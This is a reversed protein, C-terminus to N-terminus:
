FKFSLTLISKAEVTYDLTLIRAPGISNEISSDPNINREVAYEPITNLHIIKLEDSNSTSPTSSDYASVSNIFADLTGSVVYTEPASVMFYFKMKKISDHSLGTIPHTLMQQLTTSSQPLATVTSVLEAANFDLWEIFDEMSERSEFFFTCERYHTKHNDTTYSLNFSVMIKDASNIYGNMNFKDHLAYFYGSLQAESIESVQEGDTSIFATGAPQQLDAALDEARTSLETSDANIEYLGFKLTLERRFGKSTILPLPLEVIYDPSDFGPYDGSSELDLGGPYQKLDVHIDSSLTGSFSWTSSPDSTILPISFTYDALPVVSEEDFGDIFVSGEMMVEEPPNTSSIGNFHIKFKGAHHEFTLSVDQYDESFDITINFGDEQLWLQSDDRYEEVETYNWLYFETFTELDHWFVFSTDSITQELKNYYYGEIANLNISTEASRIKTATNIKAYDLESTIKDMLTGIFPKFGPWLVASFFEKVQAAPTQIWTDNVFDYIIPNQNYFFVNNNLPLSALGGYITVPFDLRVTRNCWVDHTFFAPLNEGTGLPNHLGNFENLRDWSVGVKLDLEGSIDLDWQIRYDHKALPPESPPKGVTRSKTLQVDTYWGYPQNLGEIFLDKGAILYDPSHDVDIIDTAPNGYFDIDDQFEFISPETLNIQVKIGAADTNDARTRPDWLNLDDLLTRSDSPDITIGTLERDLAMYVAIMDAPDMMKKSNLVSVLQDEISRKVGSSLVHNYLKDFNEMEASGWYREGTPNPPSWNPEDLHEDPDRASIYYRDVATAAGKDSSKLVSIEEFLVALNVALEIDGENLINLPSEYPGFGYEMKLRHRVLTNLMYTVMRQVRGFPTKSDLQVLDSSFELFPYYSRVTQSIVMNRETVVAGESTSQVVLAYQADVRYFGPVAQLQDMNVGSEYGMWSFIDNSQEYYASTYVPVIALSVELDRLEFTWQDQNSYFPELETKIVFDLKSKIRNEIEELDLDSTAESSLVEVAAYYTEHELELQASLILEEMATPIVDSEVEEKKATIYGALPTFIIMIIIAVVTLKFHFGTGSSKRVVGSRKTPKKYDDERYEPIIESEIPREM